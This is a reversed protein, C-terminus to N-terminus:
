ANDDQERRESEEEWTANLRRAYEVEFFGKIADLAGFVDAYTTGADKIEDQILQMIKDHLDGAKSM